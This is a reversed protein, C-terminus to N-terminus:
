SRKEQQNKRGAEISYISLSMMFMFFMMKFRGFMIMFTYSMMVSSRGSINSMVSFRNPVPIITRYHMVSRYPMIVSVNRWSLSYNNNVTLM